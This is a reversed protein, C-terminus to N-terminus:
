IYYNVINYVRDLHKLIRAFLCNHANAPSTVNKVGLKAKLRSICSNWPSAEKVFLTLCLYPHQLTAWSPQHHSVGRSKYRWKHRRDVAPVGCCCCGFRGCSNASQFVPRLGALFLCQLTPLWLSLSLLGRMTDVLESRAEREAKFGEMSTMKADLLLWLSRSCQPPRYLESWWDLRKSARVRFVLQCYVSFPWEAAVIVRKPSFLLNFISVDILWRFSFRQVTLASCQAPLQRTCVKIVQAQSVQRGEGKYHGQLFYARWGLPREANWEVTRYIKRGSLMWSSTQALICVFLKKLQCTLTHYQSRLKQNQPNTTVFVKGKWRTGM